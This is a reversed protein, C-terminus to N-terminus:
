FFFFFFSMSTIRSVLLWSNWSSCTREDMPVEPYLFLCNQISKICARLSLKKQRNIPLLTAANGIWRSAILLTHPYWRLPVNTRVGRLEQGDPWSACALPCTVEWIEGKRKSDSLHRSTFPLQLFQERKALIQRRAPSSHPELDPLSVFRYESRQGELEGGSHPFPPLTWGAWARTGERYFSSGLLKRFAQSRLYVLYCKDLM